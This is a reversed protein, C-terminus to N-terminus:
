RMNRLIGRRWKWGTTTGIGTRLLPFFAKSTNRREHFEVPARFFKMNM